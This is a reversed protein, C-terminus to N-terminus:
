YGSRQQPLKNREPVGGLYRKGTLNLSDAPYLRVFWSKLSASFTVPIDRAPPLTHLHLSSSSGAMSTHPIIFLSSSLLLPEILSKLPPILRELVTSHVALGLVNRLVCAM